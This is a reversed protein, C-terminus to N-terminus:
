ATALPLAGAGAPDGQQVIAGSKLVSVIREPRHLLDIDAVPDGDVILIDALKGPAISGIEHDLGLLEANVRTAAQIAELPPMGAKVVEAIERANLGHPVVFGCDSGIAIRVGAQRAREFSDLKAEQVRQLRDWYAQSYGLEELTFDFRYTIVIFTPVYYTGREVMLEIARDTLWHGHEITDVGALIAEEIPPGGATHAAVTRGFRHAEHCAAEMEAFSMEQHYPLEEPDQMTWVDSNIKIFDVGMKVHQRVAQRFGEPTDCVGVRGGIEVQGPLVMQDMHGGTICLGQGCVVLRPGVLEGAAIADRLAIDSYGPAHLDRLTTYGHLLSTLANAYGKLASAAFSPPMAPGTARQRVGTNSTVHVHVDILGPLLTAGPLEVVQAEPSWTAEARPGVSVIREGRVVVTADRLPEPSVGDIVQGCHFVYETAM